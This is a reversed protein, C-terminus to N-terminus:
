PAPLGAAAFRYAEGCAPCVWDAPAQQQLPRGCKCAYGIKQAPNGAVVAHDPVDEVVVAGAGVMAWRGITVDPLVVAGAGISAGYKVLVKGETWDADSKLAGAPTIARPYKDNALVANPGIFVGDEVACGHFLHAGNEIKVRDGVRVGRDIYVGKGLTCDAGISAGERVQAQHWIRTGPGIRAEPSVEASPHIM